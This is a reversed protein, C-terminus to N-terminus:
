KIAKQIKRELKEVMDHVARSTAMRHKVKKNAHLIIGHDLRSFVDAVATTSLGSLHYVLYMCVHRPWVLHQVRRPSQLHEWKVGFHECVACICEGTIVFQNAVYGFPNKVQTSKLEEQQHSNRSILHQNRLILDVIAATTM